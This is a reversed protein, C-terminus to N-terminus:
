RSCRRAGNGQRVSRPRRSRIASGIPRPAVGVNRSLRSTLIYRYVTWTRLSRATSVPMLAKSIESRAPPADKCPAADLCVVLLQVSGSAAADAVEDVQGPHLIGGHPRREVAHLTERRGHQLGVDVQKAQDCAARGVEADTVAIGLRWSPSHRSRCEQTREEVTRRPWRIRSSRPRLGPPSWAAESAEIPWPRRRKAPKMWGTSCARVSLRNGPSSARGELGGMCAPSTM